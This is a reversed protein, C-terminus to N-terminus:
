SSFFLLHSGCTFIQRLRPGRSLERGFELARRTRAKEHERAPRCITLPGNPGTSACSGPCLNRHGGVVHSGPM